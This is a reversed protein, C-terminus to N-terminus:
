RTRLTRAPTRTGTIGIYLNPFHALLRQAFDPSDTFCHVHIQARRLMAGSVCSRRGRVKWDRPVVEKLIRETDAEAERTHIALPKGLRVAHRLQRTFVAQQIERPSNDYHHDLKIEGWGVCHPHAMADLSPARLRPRRACPLPPVSM